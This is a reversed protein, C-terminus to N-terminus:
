GQNSRRSLSITASDRMLPWVCAYSYLVAPFRQKPVNLWWLSLTRDTRNLWSPCVSTVAEASLLMLARSMLVM